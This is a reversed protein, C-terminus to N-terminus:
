YVVSQIVSTFYTYVVRCLQRVTAANGMLAVYVVAWMSDIINISISLIIM